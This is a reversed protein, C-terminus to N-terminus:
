SWLGRKAPGKDNSASLLASLTTARVRAARRRPAQRASRLSATRLARRQRVPGARGSPPDCRSV